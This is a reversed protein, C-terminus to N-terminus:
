YGRQEAGDSVHNQMECHGGRNRLPEVRIPHPMSEDNHNRGHQDIQIVEEGVRDIVRVPATESKMWQM